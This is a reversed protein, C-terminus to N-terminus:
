AKRNTRNVTPRLAVFTDAARALPLATDAIDSDDAVDFRRLNTPQQLRTLREFVTAEIVDGARRSFRSGRNDIRNFLQSTPSLNNAYFPAISASSRERALSYLSRDDPDGFKGSASRGRLRCERPARCDAARHPACPPVVVQDFGFQRMREVIFEVDDNITPHQYSAIDDFSISHGGNYWTEAPAAGSTRALDPLDERGGQICTLRTQAAETLARTLAIRADPHTGCGSHANMVIPLGQPEAITCGITAIGTGSTLNQLQVELGAREAQPGANSRSPAIRSALDAAGRQAGAIGGVLDSIRCSRRLQPESTRAQWQWRRHM